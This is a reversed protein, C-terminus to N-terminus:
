GSRLPHKWETTLETVAVEAEVRRGLFDLLVKVRERAPLLQQVVVQLGALPGVTVQVEDGIALERAIVRLERDDMTHRLEDVVVAPVQAPKLGFHVVGIVGRAYQIAKLQTAWDFRAFLYSP